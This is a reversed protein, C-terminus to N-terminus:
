FTTNKRMVCLIYLLMLIVIVTMIILANRYSDCQGDNNDYGEKSRITFSESYIKSKPPNKSKCIGRSKDCTGERVCLGYTPAAKAPNDSETCCSYGAPCSCDKLCNCANDHFCPDM